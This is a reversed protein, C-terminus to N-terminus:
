ACVTHSDEHENDAPRELGSLQKRKWIRLYNSPVLCNSFAMFTVISWFASQLNTGFREWSQRIFLSSQKIWKGPSDESAGSSRGARGCLSRSQFGGWPKRPLEMVM